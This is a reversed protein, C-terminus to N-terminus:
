TTVVAAPREASHAEFAEEGSDFYIKADADCEPHWRHDQFHGEYISIEHRHHEGLAIAEGCWICRHQKRAKLWKERILSYSM